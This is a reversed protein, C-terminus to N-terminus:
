FRCDDPDDSADVFCVNRGDGGKLKDEAVAMDVGNLIDDGKDGFLQDAGEGGTMDDNGHGGSLFDPGGDGSLTDDGHEGFIADSGEGGHVDDAGGGACILDDGEGGDISDDRKSGVIVDDEDSGVIILPGKSHSGDYDGALRGNCSASWAANGAQASLVGLGAIYAATALVVVVRGGRRKGIVAMNAEQNFDHNRDCHGGATVVAVLPSSHVVHLM